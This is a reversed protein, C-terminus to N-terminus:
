KIPKNNARNAYKEKIKKRRIAYSYSRRNYDAVYMVGIIISLPWGVIIGFGFAGITPIITITFVMGLLKSSYFLGIPGFILNLVAQILYSKSETKDDM